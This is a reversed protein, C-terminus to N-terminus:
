IKKYNHHFIYKDEKEYQIQIQISFSSSSSLAVREDLLFRNSREVSSEVRLPQLTLNILFFLGVCSFIIGNSTIKFIYHQTLNNHDYYLVFDDNKLTLTEYSLILM